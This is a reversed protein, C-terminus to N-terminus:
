IKTVTADIDYHHEGKPDDLSVLVTSQGLVVSLGVESRVHQIVPLNGGSTISSVEFQAELGTRENGPNGARETIRAHIIVGVEAFQYKDKEVTYPVKSGTVLKGWSNSELLMSYHRAKSPPGQTVDRLTFDVRYVNSSSKDEAALPVLTAAIILLPSLLTNQIRM